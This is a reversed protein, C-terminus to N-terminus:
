QKLQFIHNKVPNKLSDMYKLAEDTKLILSDGNKLHLVLIKKEKYVNVMKIEKDPIKTAELPSITDNNIKNEEHLSKTFYNKNSDPKFISFKLKIYLAYSFTKIKQTNPNGNREILFLSNVVANHAQQKILHSFNNKSLAMSNPFLNSILYLGFLFSSITNKV